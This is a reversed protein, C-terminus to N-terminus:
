CFCRRLIEMNMAANSIITLVHFYSTGMPLHISLSFTDQAHMHIHTYIDISEAYLLCFDQWKLCCSHVKLFHQTCYTVSFSSYQIIENIHPIQFFFFFEYFCLISQHNGSALALPHPFHPFTTLLQLSGPILYILEPSRIYLM